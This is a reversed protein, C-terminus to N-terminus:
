FNKRLKGGLRGRDPISGDLEGLRGRDPISGDLEGSCRFDKGSLTGVFRCNLCKLCIKTSNKQWLSRIEAPYFSIRGRDSWGEHGMWAWAAVHARIGCQLTALGGVPLSSAVMTNVMRAVAGHVHVNMCHQFTSVFHKSSSCAHM